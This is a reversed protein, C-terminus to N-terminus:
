RPRPRSCFGLSVRIDMAQGILTQQERDTANNLYIVQGDDSVRSSGEKLFVMELSDPDTDPMFSAATGSMAAVLKTTVMLRVKCQKETEAGMAAPSMVTLFVTAAIGKLLNVCVSGM